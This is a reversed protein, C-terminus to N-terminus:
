DVKYEKIFHDVSRYYYKGFLLKECEAIVRHLNKTQNGMAEEEKCFLYLDLIDACKMVKHLEPDSFGNVINHDSYPILLPYSITIEDEIQEWCDKTTQNLNKVPYLLDGSISELLDHRSAIILDNAEYPINESEAIMSFLQMVYFSHEALNYSRHKMTGALREISAMKRHLSVFEKTLLM